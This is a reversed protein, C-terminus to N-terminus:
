LHCLLQAATRGLVHQLAPRVPAVSVLWAVLGVATAPTPGGKTAGALRLAASLLPPGDAPPPADGAWRLGALLAREDPRAPDFHILVSGTLPNVRVSSVGPLQCLTNELAQRRAAALDPVHARLRGPIRHLIRPGDTLALCMGRGRGQLRISKRLGHTHV